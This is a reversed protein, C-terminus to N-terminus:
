GGFTEQEGWEKRGEGRKEKAGLAQKGQSAQESSKAEQSENNSVPKTHTMQSTSPEPQQSEVVTTPTTATQRSDPVLATPRANFGDRQMQDFLRQYAYLRAEEPMSNLWSGLNDVGQKVSSQKGAPEQHIDAITTSHRTDQSDPSNETPAIPADLLPVEDVPPEQQDELHTGRLEDILAIEQPSAGGADDELEWTGDSSRTEKSPASENSGSNLISSDTNTDYPHATESNM